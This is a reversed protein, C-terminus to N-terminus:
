GPLEDRVEGLARWKGARIQRSSEALRQLSINLVGRAQLVARALDDTGSVATGTSQLARARRMLENAPSEWAQYLGKIRQVRADDWPAQASAAEAAMEHDVRAVADFLALAINIRAEIEWSELVDGHDRGLSRSYAALQDELFQTTTGSM